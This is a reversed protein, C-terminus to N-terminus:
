EGEELFAQAIRNLQGDIGLDLLEGETEVVLDGPAYDEEETVVLKTKGGGLSKEAPEAGFYRAYDASGVHIVATSSEKLQELAGEVLGLFIKDSDELRINIVKKVIDIVLCVVDERMGDLLRAYSARLGGGLESLAKAESAKLTEAEAQARKRGEAYGARRAEERVAAAESQAARTIEDARRKAEEATADAKAGAQELIRAATEEAEKRAQALLRACQRDTEEPCGAGGAGPGSRLAEVNQTRFATKTEATVFSVYQRDIRFSSMAEM